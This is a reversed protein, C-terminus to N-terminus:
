QPWSAGYRNVGGTQATVAQKFVPYCLVYYAFICQVFWYRNALLLDQWHIVSSTAAAAMAVCIWVAPGLRRIKKALWGAFDVSGRRKALGGMMLYGSVFFFLANGQVGFTALAPNVDKYLPVFHSNTIFLVALVKMMDLAYNRNTKM